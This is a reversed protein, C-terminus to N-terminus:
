LLNGRYLTKIFNEGPINFYLGVVSLMIVSPMIAKPMIVRLMVLYLMNANIM